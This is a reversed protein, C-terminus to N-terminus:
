VGRPDAVATSALVADLLGPFRADLDARRLTSYRHVGVVRTTTVGAERLVRLHHSVTAKSSDFGTLHHLDSCCTEGHEALGRVCALRYPDALAALVTPLDFHGRDPQELEGHM